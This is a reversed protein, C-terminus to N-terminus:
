YPAAAHAFIYKSSAVLGYYKFESQILSTPLAYYNKILKSTVNFEYLYDRTNIILMDTYDYLIEHLEADEDLKPDAYLFEIKSILYDHIIM